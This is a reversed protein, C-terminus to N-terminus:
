DELYELLESADALGAIDVNLSELLVKLFDLLVLMSLRDRLPDSGRDQSQLVRPQDLPALPFLPDELQWEVVVLSDSLPQVEHLQFEANQGTRFVYQIRFENGIVSVNQHRVCLSDSQVNLSDTHM